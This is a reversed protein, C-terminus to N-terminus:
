PRNPVNVVFTSNGPEYTYDKEWDPLKFGAVKMQDDEISRYWRAMRL